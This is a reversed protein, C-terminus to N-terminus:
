LSLAAFLVVWVVALFHWYIACYEVGPHFAVSYRGRFARATVISLPILGGVVHAAHLGTLLYFTFGYLNTKATLNAAVLAFWNMTQSALFALGLLTTLLMWRQLARERGDRAARVAAQMTVSSIAIVLTSIWLSTPLSPMGLPPWTAAKFRIMLYGVLSAAFLMSLALVLLKMGLRGTELPAAEARDDPAVPGPTM